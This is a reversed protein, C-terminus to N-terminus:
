NDLFLSILEKGEDYRTLPNNLTYNNLYNFIYYFLEYFIPPNEKKLNSLNLNLYEFRWEWFKEKNIIYCDLWKDKFNNKLEKNLLDYPGEKFSDIWKLKREWTEYYEIPSIWWTGDLLCYFWNKSFFKISFKTNKEMIKKYYETGKVFELESNNRLFNIAYVFAYSFEDEKLPETDSLVPNFYEIVVVSDIKGVELRKKANSIESDYYKLPRVFNSMVAIQKKDTDFFDSDNLHKNLPEFRYKKLYKEYNYDKM